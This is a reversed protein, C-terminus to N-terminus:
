ISFGSYQRRFHGLILHEGTERRRFGYDIDSGKQKEDAGYRLMDDGGFCGRTEAAPCSSGRDDGGYYKSAGNEHVRSIHHLGRTLSKITKEGKIFGPALASGYLSGDADM